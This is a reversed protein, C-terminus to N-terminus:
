KQFTRKLMDTNTGCLNMLKGSLSNEKLPQLNYLKGVPMLSAHVGVLFPM